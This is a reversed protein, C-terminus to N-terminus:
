STHFSDKSQHMQSILLYCQFLFSISVPQAPLSEQSTMVRIPIVCVLITCYSGRSRNPNVLFSRALNGSRKPRELACDSQVPVPVCTFSDDTVAFVLIAGGVRLIQVAFDTVWHWKKVLTTRTRSPYRTSDEFHVIERWIRSWDCLQFVWEGITCFILSHFLWERIKYYNLPAVYNKM